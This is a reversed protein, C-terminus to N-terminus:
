APDGTVDEGRTAKAALPLGLEFISGNTSGDQRDPTRHRCYGGHAQAFFAVLALGLGAGRREGATSGRYFKEFIAESEGPPVGVGRDEVTLVAYKGDKRLTVDIRKEDDPDCYKRANSLLNVLSETLAERDVEVELPVDADVHIEFGHQELHAEYDHIVDRVLADIRTREPRYTKSGADIKSFDLVRDILETLRNSEKAIISSFEIAKEPDQVRGLALTEGYMRILALPTKLEHSVRGVFETRMAALQQERRMTRVLLFASFGAVVALALLLVAKILINRRASRTLAAPDEPVLELSLGRLDGGLSHRVTTEAYTGDARATGDHRGALTRGNVDVVVLDYGLDGRSLRQEVSAAIPAVLSEMDVPLGIWFLRETRNVRVRMRTFALLLTVDRMTVVDTVLDSKTTELRSTDRRIFATQLRRTAVHRARRQEIAVLEDDFARADGNDSSPTVVRKRVRRYMRDLWADSEGDFEGYAIGSLLDAADRQGYGELELLHVRTLLRLAAVSRKLRGARSMRNVADMTSRFQALAESERGLSRLYRGREFMLRARGEASLSSPATWFLLHEAADEVLGRAAFFESESIRRTLDRHAGRNTNLPPLQATAGSARPARMPWVPNGSLDFVLAGPLSVARQSSELHEIIASRTLGHLESTLDSVHEQVSRELDNEVGRLLSQMGSTLSDLVQEEVRGIERVGIWAVVASPVLLVLLSLSLTKKSTRM